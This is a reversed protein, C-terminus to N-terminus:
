KPVASISGQGSIADLWRISCLAYSQWGRCGGRGGWFFCSTSIYTVNHELVLVLRIHIGKLLILNSQCVMEM